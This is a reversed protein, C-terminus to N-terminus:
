LKGNRHLAKMRDSRRKREAPSINNKKKGGMGEFDIGKGEPNKKDVTDGLNRMSFRSQRKLDEEPMDGISKVNAARIPNELNYYTRYDKDAAADLFQKRESMDHQREGIDAIKERLRYQRKREAIDQDFSKRLANMMKNIMKEPVQQLAALESITDKPKTGGLQEYIKLAIDRYLKNFAMSGDDVYPNIFQDPYLEELEASVKKKKGGALKQLQNYIREQEM